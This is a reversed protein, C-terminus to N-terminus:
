ALSAFSVFFRGSRSPLAKRTGSPRRQAQPSADPFAPLALGLAERSARLSNDADPPFYPSEPVEDRWIASAQGAGTEHAAEGWRIQTGTAANLLKLHEWPRPTVPRM